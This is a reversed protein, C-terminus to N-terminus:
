WAGVSDSGVVGPQSNAQQHIRGHRVRSIQDPRRTACPRNHGRHALARERGAIARLEDIGNLRPSALLLWTDPQGGYILPGFLRFASSKAELEFTTNRHSEISQFRRSVLTPRWINFHDELRSGAALPPFLRALGAGVQVIELRASVTVHFPFISSLDDASPQLQDPMM